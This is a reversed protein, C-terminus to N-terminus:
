VDRRLILQFTSGSGLVSQVQLKGGHRLALWQAISLGLGAGGSKRSRDQSTRYFRDFIHPIHEPAIGTGTDRVDILALSEGGATELHMDVHISGGAPTFKIANDMLILLLRRLADPDGTVPCKVPITATLHVGSAQALITMEDTSARLIQALDVSEFSLDDQGADSRALLLLDDILQATQETQVIVQAWAREHEQPTRPRATTVEATTRIIAIPTRLEHSADATFRAVRNFAGELRVLMENLAASLRDLEDGTGRVALRESLNQGSIREATRAIQDVPNLARGSMWYGGAFALLLLLPSTLVMSLTFGSLMEDFDDSPIGIQVIGRQVPASLVRMSHGNVTAASVKGSRGIASPEPVALNWHRTAPSRYVWAGNSDALRMWAGGPTAGAQEGLEEALETQAHSDLYTRVALLRLRLDKDITEDISRRLAYVVGGGAVALILALIGAFWATLRFRISRSNM